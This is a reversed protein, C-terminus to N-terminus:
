CGCSAPTSRRRRRTSRRSAPMITRAACWKLHLLGPINRDAFYATKGTVHGPADVRPRGQGLEHLDDKREDAFYSKRLEM